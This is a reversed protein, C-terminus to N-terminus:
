KLYIFLKVIPGGEAWGMVCMEWGQVRDDQTVFVPLTCILQAFCSNSVISSPSARSFRLGRARRAKVVATPHPRPAHGEGDMRAGELPHAEAGGVAEAPNSHM